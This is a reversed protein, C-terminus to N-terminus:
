QRLRMGRKLAQQNYLAARSVDRLSEKLVQVLHLLAAV